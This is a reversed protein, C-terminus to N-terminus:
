RREAPDAAGLISGSDGGGDLVPVGERYGIIPALTVALALTLTPNSSLESLSPQIVNVAVIPGTM